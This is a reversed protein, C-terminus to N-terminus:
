IRKEKNKLSKQIKSIQKWKLKEAASAKMVQRAALYELEKRLKLYNEFRARDLKGDQIAKRVACGPESSHQCDRFRCAVALEEIDEFAQRLGQEDGWVQLERMGPTDIVIGGDPLLILERRTTTHRGRSDADSAENVALRDEGLLRNIISSKGVGSSGLFAGTRGPSLYKDLADLGQGDRASIPHVETGIALAEVEATRADLEQCIDSKNLLVVPLAGSEWALTLYREVRRLSYNGDLGIVIFVTDVNAAVIQQQTEEGAVKRAFASQRPLLAQIIARDEDHRSIAVWDGVAPFKGDAEFRFRGSVEALCEGHEDLATYINKHEQAIRAPVLNGAKFQEFHSEFFQNWGLEILNMTTKRNINHLRELLDGSHRSVTVNM